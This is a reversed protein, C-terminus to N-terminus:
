GIKNSKEINCKQCLLQLNEITSAGGKSFPIIHDLQINETSGCYVCRGGDKRWVADVVEKPIRPRKTKDGFLEGSDILEQRVEKELQRRRQKTKLREAIQRREEDEREAQYRKQQEEEWSNMKALYEADMNAREQETANIYQNFYADVEEHTTFAYYTPQSYDIFFPYQTSIGRANFWKVNAYQRHIGNGLECCIIDALVAKTYVGDIVKHCLGRYFELRTYEPNNTDKLELALIADHRVPTSEPTNRNSDKKSSGSKTIFYIFLIAIIIVFIIFIAEM